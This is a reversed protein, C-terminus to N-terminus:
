VPLLLNVFASILSTAALLVGVLVLASIIGIRRTQRRSEQPRAVWEELLALNRLNAKFVFDFLDGAIPIVGIALELAVNAAMRLVLGAPAGMRAAEILIVGSLGAALLDGIGPILGLLGDIGIRFGGPLRISSDLLWALRRLRDLAPLSPM